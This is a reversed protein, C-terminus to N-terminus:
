KMQGAARCIYCIDDLNAHAYAIEAMFAPRSTQCTKGYKVMNMGIAYAHRMADDNDDVRLLVDFHEKCIKAAGAEVLARQADNWDVVVTSM